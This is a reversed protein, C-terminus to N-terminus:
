NPGSAPVGAVPMSAPVSVTVGADQYVAQDDEHHDAPKELLGKNSSEKDPLIESM